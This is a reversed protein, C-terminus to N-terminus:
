NPRGEDIFHILVQPARADAGSSSAPEDEETDVPNLSVTRPADVSTLRVLDGSQLVSSQSDVEIRLRRGSFHQFIASQHEPVVIELNSLAMHVESVFRRGKLLPLTQPTQLLSDFTHPLSLPRLVSRGRQVEARKRERFAIMLVGILLSLGGILLLVWAAQRAREHDTSGLIGLSLGLFFLGEAIFFSAGNM